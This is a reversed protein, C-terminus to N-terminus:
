GACTASAVWVDRQAGDHTGRLRVGQSESLPRLVASAVDDPSRLAIGNAQEIRDGATLGLMAAYGGSARVVLGDPSGALLSTWATPQERLGALLEANLRIVPGTFGAPPACTSSQASATRVASAARVASAVDFDSPTRVASSTSAPAAMSTAMPTGTQTTTTARPTWLPLSHERGGERITVSQPAVSVLTAAGTVAEGVAVLKPTSGVRFLAYGKGNDEAIIGLLRADGSLEAAPADGAAGPGASGGFLGSAILTAVPDGPARPAIPVPKPGLAQWAWYAIVAALIAGAVLTALAGVARMGPGDSYDRAEAM